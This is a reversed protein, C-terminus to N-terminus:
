QRNVECLLTSHYTYISTAVRPAIRLLIEKVYYNMLGRNGKEYTYIRKSPNTVIEGIVKLNCSQLLRRITKPSYYNIHGVENVVFDNELRVNDELPVEVIIHKAIRAAEYLLLRPHEVHEIVHSLIVLDFKAEEYNTAYGDFLVCEVLSNINQDIIAKVGTSSIETAYLEDSFRIDALGKLISGDGAGIEIVTKHPIDKCLTVINTVKDMAGLRRWESGGGEYAHEYNNRLEKSVGFDTM